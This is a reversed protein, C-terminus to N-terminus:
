QPFAIERMSLDPPVFVEGHFVHNADRIHSDISTYRPSIHFLALSQANLATGAIGADAATSHQFERARDAESTDFTADHIMLDLIDPVYSRLREHIPRTDGTYLINRGRRPLGLVQDPTVTITEVGSSVTVEQGRQLKGFLPGPKVGLEIARERDFKGPREREQFLYGVGVVGHDTPLVTITFGSFPIIDGPEVRVREIQFKFKSINRCIQRMDEVIEFVGEPGYITIDETRGQFSMTQLLGIIGLFHDAHWHSIFISNVSLGCKARMMQQQTGEGCDFLLDCSGWKLMIAPLNRSVTPLSGSTGLFFVQLTEGTICDM